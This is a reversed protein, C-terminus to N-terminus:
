QWQPDNTIFPDLDNSDYVYTNDEITAKREFRSYPL